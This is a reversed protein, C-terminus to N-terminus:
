KGDSPKEEDRLLRALEQKEAKSLKGFDFNNQVGDGQIQQLNLREIYIIRADGFQGSIALNKLEDAARGAMLRTYDWTAVAAKEGTVADKIEVRERLTYLNGTRGQKKTIHGHVILEDLCRKVSAKSLGAKESITDLSPFARGDKWNTFAKVVLYVKVTSGNMAAIEGNMVMENFVHFWEANAEFQPLDPQKDNSM